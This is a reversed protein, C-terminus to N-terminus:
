PERKPRRAVSARGNWQFARRRRGTAVSDAEFAPDEVPFGDGVADFAFSEVHRADGDAEFILSEVLSADADAEFARREVLLHGADAEFAHREVLFAGPEAQFARREVLFADADAEYAHRRLPVAGCISRGADIKEGITGGGARACDNPAPTVLCRELTVFTVRSPLEYVGACIVVL